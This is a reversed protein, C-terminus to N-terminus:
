VKRVRFFLKTLDVYKCGIISVQKLLIGTGLGQDTSNNEERLNVLLMKICIKAWVYWM